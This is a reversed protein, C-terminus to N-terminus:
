FSNGEYLYSYNLGKGNYKTIEFEEISLLGGLAFKNKECVDTFIDKGIKYEKKNYFYCTGSPISVIYRVYSAIYDNGEMYKSAIQEAETYMKADVFIPIISLISIVLINLVRKM